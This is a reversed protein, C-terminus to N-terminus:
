TRGAENAKKEWEGALEKIKAIAFKEIEARAASLLAETHAKQADLWFMEARNRVTYSDEWGGASAAYTSAKLRDVIKVAEAYVAKNLRRELPEFFPKFVVTM